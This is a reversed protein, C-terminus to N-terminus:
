NKTQFFKGKLTQFNLDSFEALLIFINYVEGGQQSFLVLSQLCVKTM